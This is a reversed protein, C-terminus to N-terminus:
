NTNEVIFNKVTSGTPTLNGNMGYIVNSIFNWVSNSLTSYELDFLCHCKFCTDIGKSLSPVNIPHREIIVFFQTFEIKSLNGLALVFPQTQLDENAIYDAVSTGVQLINFVFILVFYANIPLKNNIVPIIHVMSKRCDVASRKVSVKKGKKVVLEHSGGIL